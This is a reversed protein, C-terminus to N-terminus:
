GSYGKWKQFEKTWLYINFKNCLNIYFIINKWEAKLIKWSDLNIQTAKEGIKYLSQILGDTIQKFSYVEM